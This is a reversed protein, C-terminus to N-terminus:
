ISSVPNEIYNVTKQYKDLFWIQLNILVPILFKNDLILSRPDLISFGTYGTM